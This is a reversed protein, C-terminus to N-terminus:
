QNANERVVATIKRKIRCLANDISKVSRELDEAIEQYSRGENYRLFVKKELTSFASWVRNRLEAPVTNLLSEPETESEAEETGATGGPLSSLAENLCRAAWEGFSLGPAEAFHGAAWFLREVGLFLAEDRLSGRWPAIKVMVLPKYRRVLAVLAEENGNAAILALDEDSRLHLDM